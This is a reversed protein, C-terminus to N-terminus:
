RQEAARLLADRPDRGELLQREVEPQDERDRQQHEGEARNQDDAGLTGNIRSRAAPTRSRVPTPRRIPTRSSTPRRSRRRAAARQWLAALIAQPCPPFNKGM